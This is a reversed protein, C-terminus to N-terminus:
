IIIATSVILLLVAHHRNKGNNSETVTLVGIPSTIIDSHSSSPIFCQISIGNLSLDVISIVIRRGNESTSIFPPPVDSFYYITNNIKWFPIGAPVAQNLRCPFFVNTAGETRSINRTGEVVM